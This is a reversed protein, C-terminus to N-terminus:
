KRPFDFEGPISSESAWRQKFPIDLLIVVKSQFTSTRGSPLEVLFAVIYIPTRNQAQAM